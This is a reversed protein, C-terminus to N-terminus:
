LLDLLLPEGWHLDDVIAVLPREAAASEFLRRIAWFTEEAPATDRDLGM